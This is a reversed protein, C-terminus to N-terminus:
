NSGSCVAVGVTGEVGIEGGMLEVLRKSVVLGIGTGQALGAEQGLRNFPQFLRAIKEPHLGEGTDHFSIRTREATAASCTVEVTGGVRNYKIANSLLNVV